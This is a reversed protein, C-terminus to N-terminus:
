VAYSKAVFPNILGADELIGKIYPILHMLRSKGFKIM